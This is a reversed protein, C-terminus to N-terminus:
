AEGCVDCALLTNECSYCPPRPSAACTCDGVRGPAIKGRCKPNPCDDGETLDRPELAIPAAPRFRKDIDDFGIM